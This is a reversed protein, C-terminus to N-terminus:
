HDGPMAKMMLWMMALCVVVYIIAGTGAVGTAILAAVVVLMPICCAIMMWRHGGHGGHPGPAPQNDLDRAEDPQGHVHVDAREGAPPVDVPQKTFWNRPQQDIM